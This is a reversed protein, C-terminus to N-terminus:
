MNIPILLKFGFNRGINYVGMRGTANNVATYKLRSLHNQYARNTLNEGTIFVSAIRRGHIKIDTGATFGLLTYSPTATETNNAEYYHNQELNCEARLSVFTNNLTRGDRVIDYRLESTIRPAPTFPLYKSEHPQNLLVSNVYSFTNEFHLKEIPHIDLGLEGGMIRADGSTFKYTPQGDTIVENGDADALKASFIYDNIFNAFVAAQVSVISSSYDFGLDFQWSNEAKLGNDGLEYRVTGEHIGNSALESINPARFGHSINLRLNMNDKINYTAGISGTIGNFSSSFANFRLSGEDMLSNSSLHRNDYRVGGSLHVKAITREVTAFAGIDFLNYAPILFESGKNESKQYMGNVGAAIKWGSIEPSLYRVDYNVTHLRFYLGCEDPALIDEFEKRINQQYGLLVKVSGDGAVLSNDLVAKYHYVQQYPMQHSYSKFDSHTAVAESEEGDIVVPKIFEGTTEDREGEIIGPTLHYYGLTLHSYGWKRNIGTIGTLAQEAFGSDYVYGDYKNKYSHARKDSYRWNWVIGGRNGAFNLSTAILGNNTQYETSLNAQMMGKALTPAEHFILVGAMADSGFMLSAPGKLIEVSGVTQADIEIGHEDGWQQGEQRVGDAIVVIRNYGLGRIVPKSIGSGTTIQSVGPQRAIADIINTSSQEQLTRLSVVSVPAPANKLLSGGTLGTVVVENLMANSEQMTFNLTTVSRLDVEKIITQHGVYSIQVVTKKAPLGKIAYNGDATTATGEKFEPFYVSAGVVASSDVADTIRGKLLGNQQLGAAAMCLCLCLLQMIIIYRKM